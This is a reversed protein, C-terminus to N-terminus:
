GAAGARVTELALCLDDWAEAKLQPQRLLFAPEHTVVVALGATRHVTGRLRGLPEDRGLLAQAAIRGLALVVRPRVLEAERRLFPVCSAVEAAEPARDGPPRCKVAHTIWPQRAPDGTGRALGLARLMNDLLEGRRGAYPAGAAEDAAEPAGGVLMWDAERHGAGAIGGRRGACLACASCTAIREELAPWDLAPVARAALAVPHPEAVGPASVPLPEVRPAEAVTTSGAAVGALAHAEAAAPGDAPSGEADWVRLGMEALMARQCESWRM